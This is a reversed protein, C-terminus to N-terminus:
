RQDEEQEKPIKCRPFRLHLYRRKLFLSLHFVNKLTNIKIKVSAKLKRVENLKGFFLLNRFVFMREPIIESADTEKKKNKLNEGANQEEKVIGRRYIRGMFANLEDHALNFKAPQHAGYV